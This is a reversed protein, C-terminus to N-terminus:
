AGAFPFAAQAPTKPPGTARRVRVADNGAVDVVDAVRRLDVDARVRVVLMDVEVIRRPVDAAYRAFAAAGCDRRPPCRSGSFQRAPISGAISGTTGIFGVASLRELSCTTGGYMLLPM